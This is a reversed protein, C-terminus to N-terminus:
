EAHIHRNQRHRDTQWKKMLFISHNSLIQYHSLDWDLSFVIVNQLCDSSLYNSLNFKFSLIFIQFFNPNSIYYIGIYKYLLFHIYQIQKVEVKLKKWETQKDTQWWNVWFTNVPKSLVHYSSLFLQHSNSRNEWNDLSNLYM